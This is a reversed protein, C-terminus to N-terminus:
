RQEQIAVPRAPTAGSLSQVPVEEVRDRLQRLNQASKGLALTILACDKIEIPAPRTESM